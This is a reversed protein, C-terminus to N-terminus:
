DDDCGVVNEPKIDRHVMDNEHLPSLGDLIALSVQKVTAEDMAKRPGETTDEETLDWLTGGDAYETVLAYRGEERFIDRVALLHANPISKLRECIDMERKIAREDDPKGGITATKVAVVTGTRTDVGKYVRAFGGRGIEEILNYHAPRLLVKSADAGGQIRSSSPEASYGKPDLENLQSRVTQRM